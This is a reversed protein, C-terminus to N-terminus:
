RDGSGAHREARAGPPGCAVARGCGAARDAPGRPATTPTFSVGVSNTEEPPASLVFGQELGRPANVYFETMGRRHYEIRADEPVLSAGSVPWVTSGRGYGALTLGWEWSPEAETRPVVRIGTETFYIRFGHARNPAHWAEDVDDLEDARQWSAEYESAAIDQQVRSWWYAPAGAPGSAVSGEKRDVTPPSAAAAPWLAALTCLFFFVIRCLCSVPKPEMPDPTFFRNSRM